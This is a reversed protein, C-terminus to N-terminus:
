LWNTAMSAHIAWLLLLLLPTTLNVASVTPMLSDTQRRRRTGPSPTRPRCTTTRKGGRVARRDGGWAPRRKHDPGQPHDGCIARVGVPSGPSGVVAAAEREPCGPETSPAGGGAGRTM